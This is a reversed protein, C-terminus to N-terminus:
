GLNKIGDFLPGFKSNTMGKTELALWGVFLLGLAILIVLIVMHLSFEFGKRSKM